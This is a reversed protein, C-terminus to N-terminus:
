TSLLDVLVHLKQDATRDLPFLRILRHQSNNNHPNKQKKKKNKNKNKKKM